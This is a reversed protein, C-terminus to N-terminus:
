AIYPCRPSRAPTRMWRIARSSPMGNSTTPSKSAVGGIPGCYASVGSSTIRSASRTSSPISYSDRSSTASTYLVFLDRLLWSILPHTHLPHPSPGTGLCAHPHAALHRTGRRPQHHRFGLVQRVRHKEARHRRGALAHHRDLGGPQLRVGAVPIRELVVANDVRRENSREAGVRGRPLWRTESR